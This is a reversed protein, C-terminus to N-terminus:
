KRNSVSNLQEIPLTEHKGIIEVPVDIGVEVSAINLQERMVDAQREFIAQIAEQSMNNSIERRAANEMDLTMNVQLPVRLNEFDQRIADLNDDKQISDTPQESKVESAREIRQTVGGKETTVMKDYLYANKDTIRGVESPRTVTTESRNIEKDQKVDELPNHRVIDEKGKVMNDMIVEDIFSTAENTSQKGVTEEYRPPSDIADNYTKTEKSKGTDTSPELNEDAGNNEEKIESPEEQKVQEKDNQVWTESEEQQLEASEKKEGIEEAKEEIPMKETPEETKEELTEETKEQDYLDEPAEETIQEQGKEAGVVVDKDLKGAQKGGHTEGDADIAEDTVLKERLKKLEIEIATRLDAESHSIHFTAKLNMLARMERRWSFYFFLCRLISRYKENIRMDLAFLFSLAEVRATKEKKQKVASVAYEARAVITRSSVKKTEWEDYIALGRNIVADGTHKEDRAFNHENKM